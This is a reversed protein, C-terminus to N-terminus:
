ETAFYRLNKIHREFEITWGAICRKTNRVFRPALRYFARLALRNGVTGHFRNLWDFRITLREIKRRRGFFLGVFCMSVLRIGVLLRVILM